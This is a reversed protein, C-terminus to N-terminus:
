ASTRAACPSIRASSAPRRRCWSPGSVIAGATVGDVGRERLIPVLWGFVCYALASQFGMFLTVKWALRDKWLGEVRIGTEEVGAQGRFAGAAALDPM